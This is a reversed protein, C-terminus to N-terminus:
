GNSRNLELLTLLFGGAIAVGYPVEWGSLFRTERQSVGTIRRRVMMVVLLGFGAASTWGILPLVKELPLACAAAAYFKADGGGIAGLRFLMMGAILALAAHLLAWPVAAPGASVALGGTGAVAFAACLWNPLRREKIDLIAGLGAAGIAPWFAPDPIV